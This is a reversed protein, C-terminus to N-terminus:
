HLWRRTTLPEKIRQGSEKEKLLDTLTHYHSCKCVSAGIGEIFHVYRCKWNPISPNHVDFIHNCASCTLGKM